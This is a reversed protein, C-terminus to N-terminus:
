VAPQGELRLLVELGILAREDAAVSGFSGDDRQRTLLGPLTKDLIPHTAADPVAVLGDLAHFFDVRPWTGDKLQHKGVVQVLGLTVPRWREPAPGLAGLASFALDPPLHEGWRDWEELLYGFSDLHREVPPEHVRGARVLVALALCSIAFRAHSETRFVKGNPVSVPAARETPPAPSFFGGLFHECLRHPHRAATCGLGFAGPQNALGLIWDLHPAVSGTEGLLVLDTVAHITPVAAGGFSGDPRARGEIVSVLQRHLLEDDPAAADLRRRAVWGSVTSRREFFRRLRDLPRPVSSV